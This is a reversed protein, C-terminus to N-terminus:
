RFGALFGRDIRDKLAMALRGEVVIGKWELIATGDGSNLIRLFGSQPSYSPGEAGAVAARLGAELIPGERVAYVGAKATEPFDVLSACDGAAFVRPDGTSRLKSDVVLFGKADVPLGSERLLPWAVAGTLWVVIPAAVISGDALRAGEATVSSVPTASRLEIGRKALVGLVKRRMRDGSGALIRSGSDLITVRPAAGGARAFAADIALGVEIGAAGGGVVVARLPGGAAMREELRAKLDPIRVIPKAVFAGAAVEPADWRAPTSGIGISCLDWGIEEGSALRVVSREPDLAVVTGEMFRAGAAAALPGLPVSIEDATYTGALYGPVMGSYFQRPGPSVLTLEAGPVGGRFGRLVHLHSHGGGVLVLRKAM